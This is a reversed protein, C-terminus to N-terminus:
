GLDLVESKMYEVEVRVVKIRIQMSSMRMMHEESVTVENRICSRLM